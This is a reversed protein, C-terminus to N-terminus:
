PTKIFTIKEPIKFIEDDIEEKSVCTMNEKLLLELIKSEDKRRSRFYQLSSDEENFLTYKGSVAGDEYYYVTSKNDIWRYLLPKQQMDIMHVLNNKFYIIRMPSDKYIPHKKWCMASSNGNLASFLYFAGEKYNKLEMSRNAM